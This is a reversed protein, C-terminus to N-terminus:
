VKLVGSFVHVVSSFNGLELAVGRMTLGEQGVEGAGEDFV